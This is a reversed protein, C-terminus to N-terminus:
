PLKLCPTYFSLGPHDRDELPSFLTQLSNQSVVPFYISEVALLNPDSRDSHNSDDGRGWGWVETSCSTTMGLRKQISLLKAWYRLIM